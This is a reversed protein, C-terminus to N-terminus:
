GPEPWLLGRLAQPLAHHDLRYLTPAYRGLDDRGHPRDEEYLEVIYTLIDLDHRITGRPVALQDAMEGATMGTPSEALLRIIRLLRESRDAGDRDTEALVPEAITM